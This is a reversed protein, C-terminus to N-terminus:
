KETNRKCDTILDATIETFRRQAAPLSYNSKVVKKQNKIIKDTNNNDHTIEEYKEEISKVSPDPLAYGVEGDIIIDDLSGVQTAVVVAGCGMAEIATTPLGEAESPMFLYKIENLHHPVNESNVWGTLHIQDIGRIQDEVENYLPGDGILRVCTSPSDEVINSAAKALNLVGKLESFGGVFGIDVERKSWVEKDKYENFSRYNSYSVYIRGSPITDIESSTYVVAGSSLHFAGLQFLYLVSRKALGGLGKREIALAGIKIVCSPLSIIKCVLTTLFYAMAGKHFYVLDYESRNSILIASIKLQIAVFDIISVNTNYSGIDEFCGPVNKLTRETKGGGIVTISDSIPSLIDIFRQIPEVQSQHTTPATIIVINRSHHDCEKKM